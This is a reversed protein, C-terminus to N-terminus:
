RHLLQEMEKMEATQVNIMTQAADRLPQYRGNDVEDQTMAVAGDHHSHMLKLFTEEAGAGELSELQKMQQPTIMGNAIHSSHHEMTKQAGWENALGKMYVIEKEQGTKIRQAIDRTEPSIGPKSLVIDSMDVAQQHHPTMMGLFHLDVENGAPNKETQSGCGALALAGIICIASMRLNM